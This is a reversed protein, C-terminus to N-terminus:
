LGYNHKNGEASQDSTEVIMTIDSSSTGGELLLTISINGTSESGTYRSSSFQVM